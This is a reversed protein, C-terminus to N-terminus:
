SRSAGDWQYKGDIRAGNSKCWVQTTGTHFLGSNVDKTGFHDHSSYASNSGKYALCSAVRLTTKRPAQLSGCDDKYATGSRRDETHKFGIPRDLSSSSTYWECVIENADNACKHATPASSANKNIKQGVKSNGEDSHGFYSGGVRTFKCSVDGYSRGSPVFYTYANQKGKVERGTCITGNATVECNSGSPAPVSPAPKAPASTVTQRTVFTGSLKANRARLFAWSKPGIIGDCSQYTSGCNGTSKAYNFQFIQVQRKTNPGFDGDPVTNVVYQMYQVCSGKSGVTLTPSGSCSYPNHYTGKKAVTKHSSSSSSSSGGDSPVLAHSSIVKFTAFIGVGVVLAALAFHHAVGRSNLKLLKM